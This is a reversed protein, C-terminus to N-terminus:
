SAGLQAAWPYGIYCFCAPAGTIRKNMYLREAFAIFPIVQPNQQGRAEAQALLAARQQPNTTGAASTVLRTTTPDNFGTFNVVSNPLANEIFLELPDSTVAYGGGIFGAYHSRQKADLFLTGFQAGPLQRIQVNLGLQSAASQVAIAAQSAATDGGTVAIVIPAKPPDAGHILARAKALNPSTALRAAAAAFTSQGYSALGPPIASFSPTGTGAYVANALGKRDVMMSLARRVRPDGLPGGAHAIFMGLFQRNRGLYLTGSTSAKLQPLGTLPAEYSGDIEGTTLANTLTSPDSIFKFDLEKVKPVLAKDWYSPNAAVLIDSGATWRVLEYPGSCM